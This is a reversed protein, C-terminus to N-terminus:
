PAPNPCTWVNNVQKCKGTGTNGCQVPNVGAPCNSAPNNIPYCTSAGLGNNGTCATCAGNLNNPDTCQWRPFSQCTFGNPLGRVCAARPLNAAGHACMLGMASVFALACAWKMISYTRRM